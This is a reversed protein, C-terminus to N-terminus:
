NSAILRFSFRKKEILTVRPIITAPSTAAHFYVAPPVSRLTKQLSCSLFFSIDALSVIRERERRGRGGKKRADWRDTDCLFRPRGLSDHLEPIFIIRCYLVVNVRTAHAGRTRSKAERTVYDCFHLDREHTFSSRAIIEGPIFSDKQFTRTLHRFDRVFKFHVHVYTYVRRIPICM